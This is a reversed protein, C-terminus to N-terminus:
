SPINIDGMTPLRRLDECNRDQTDNGHTIAPYPITSKTQHNNVDVGVLGNREFSIRSMLKLKDDEEFKMQVDWKMPSEEQDVLWRLRIATGHWAEELESLIM